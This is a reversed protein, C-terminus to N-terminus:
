SRGELYSKFWTKAQGKIGLLELTTLILEHGLCKLDKSFDLMIDTVVNGDELADIIFEDLKIIASTTSGWKIFDYQDGIQLNYLKFHDM